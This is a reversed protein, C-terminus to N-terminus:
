RERLRGALGRASAADDPPVRSWRTRSCSTSRPASRSRSARSPCSTTSSGARGRTAPGGSLRLGVLLGAEELQSRATALDLCLFDGVLVLESSPFPTPSATDPRTDAYTTPAPRGSPRRSPGRSPDTSRAPRSPTTSSRAAPPRPVRERSPRSSTARPCSTPPPSASAPGCARTRSSRSPRPGGQDRPRRARGRDRGAHGRHGPRHHRGPIETEPEPLQEIIRGAELEDTEHYDMELVLGRREALALANAEMRGVFDPTRVMEITPAPSPSPTARRRASAASSCSCCSASPSSSWCASAPRWGPGRGPGPASPTPRRRRAAAM